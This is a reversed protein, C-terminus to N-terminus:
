EIIRIKKYVTTSTAGIEFDRKTRIFAVDSYFRFKLYFIFRKVMNMDPYKLNNLNDYIDNVSNVKTNIDDFQYFAEGLVITPKGWMMAQLGVGSNITMVCDCYDLIDKMHNNIKICKKFKYNTKDLPHPKVVVKWDKFDTAIKECINVLNNMNKVWGSHFKIVTDTPVQLPVFLVKKGDTKDICRRKPQKELSNSGLIYKEIYDEVNRSDEDSLEIDWYRKDYSSSLVNFGDPDIHMTNELAGREVCYRPINYKKAIEILESNNHLYPNVHVFCSINNSKILDEFDSKNRSKCIRKVGGFHNLINKDTLFPHNEFLVIRSDWKKILDYMLSWNNAKSQVYKADNDRRHFKHILFINKNYTKLNYFSVMDRIGTAKFGEGPYDKDPSYKKYESNLQHVLLFDEAGHGRFGRYIGGINLFTKRNFLPMTGCFNPMERHSEDKDILRLTNGNVKKNLYKDSFSSNAYYVGCVSFAYPNCESKLFDVEALLKHYFDFSPYCDVDNVFLYECNINQAVRNMCEGISFVGKDDIYLYEVGYEECLGELRGDEDGLNALCFVVSDNKFRGKANKINMFLGKLMDFRGRYPIAVGLKFSDGNSLDEMPLFPKLYKEVVIDGNCDDDLRCEEYVKGNKKNNVKEVFFKHSSSLEENYNFDKQGEILTKHELHNIIRRHCWGIKYGAERARFCLDPDEYYAMGFREDFIGIDQLMSRKMLCGGAGIYDIKIGGRKVVHRKKPMLHKSSMEWAAVVVMDYGKLM